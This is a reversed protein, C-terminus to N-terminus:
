FWIDQAKRVSLQLIDKPKIRSTLLINVLTLSICLMMICLSFHKCFM